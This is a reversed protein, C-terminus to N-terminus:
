NWEKASVSCHFYNIFNYVSQDFVPTWLYHTAGWIQTVLGEV